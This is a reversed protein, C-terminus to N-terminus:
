EDLNEYYEIRSKLYRIEEEIDAEFVTLGQDEYKDIWKTEFFSCYWKGDESMAEYLKPRQTEIFHLRNNLRYLAFEKTRYISKMILSYGKYNQIQYSTM